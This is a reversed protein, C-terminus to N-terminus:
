YAIQLLDASTKLRGLYEYFKPEPLQLLINIATQQEKSIKGYDCISNTKHECLYDLSVNFYDAIKILTEIDPQTKEIEYNSFTARTIQLAQAIKEQSINEKERLEKIKM